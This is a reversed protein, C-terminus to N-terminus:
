DGYGGVTMVRVLASFGFLQALKAQRARKDADYKEREDPTMQEYKLREEEQWKNEQEADYKRRANLCNM